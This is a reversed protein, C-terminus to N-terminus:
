CNDYIRLTKKQIMEYAFSICKMSAILFNSQINTDIIDGVKPILNLTSIIAVTDKALIVQNHIQCNDGDFYNSCFCMDRNERSLNICKDKNCKSKCVNKSSCEEVVGLLARRFEYMNKTWKHIQPISNNDKNALKGYVVMIQEAKFLKLLLNTGFKLITKENCGSTEKVKQLLSVRSFRTGNLTAQFIHWYQDKIDFDNKFLKITWQMGTKCEAQSTCELEELKELFKNFIVFSFEISRLEFFVERFDQGFRKDSTLELKRNIDTFAKKLKKFTEQEIKPDFEQIFAALSDITGVFNTLFNMQNFIKSRPESSFLDAIHKGDTLGVESQSKWHERLSIKNGFVLCRMLGLLFSIVMFIQMM